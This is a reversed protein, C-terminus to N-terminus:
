SGSDYMVANEDYDDDGDDSPEPDDMDYYPDLACSRHRKSVREPACAKDRGHPSGLLLATLPPPPPPPPPPRRRIALALAGRASEGGDGGGVDGGGGVGGGGVGGVVVGGGYLIVPVGGGDAILRELTM